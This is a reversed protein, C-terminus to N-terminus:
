DAHIERPDQAGANSLEDGEGRWIPTKENDEIVIWEIKDHPYDTALLNHFAIDILMKRNYTPTIVTIPPCDEAHLVPPCHFVGKSPRRDMAISQISRVLPLIADKVKEFRQRAREQRARCIMKPDSARFADFATVLENRSCETQGVWAIGNAIGDAYQAYQATFVPLANMVTFAGAAEADAAAYGFGEAESVVLHGRYQTMIKHRVDVALDQCVVEGMFPAVLPRLEEAM